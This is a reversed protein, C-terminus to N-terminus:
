GLLTEYALEHWQTRVCIPLATYQDHVVWEYFLSDTVRKAPRRFLSVGRLTEDIEVDPTGGTQGIFLRLIARRLNLAATGVSGPFTILAECMTFVDVLAADGGKAHELIDRSETFSSGVLSRLEAVFDHLPTELVTPADEIRLAAFRVESLPPVGRNVRLRSHQDLPELLTAIDQPQAPDSMAELKLFLDDFPWVGPIPVLGQAAILYRAFQSFEWALELTATWCDRFLVVEPQLREAAFAAKIEGFRLSKVPMPNPDLFFGAPGAGHGWFFVAIRADSGVKDRAFRLFKQLSGQTGSNAEIANVCAKPDDEGYKGNVFCRRSAVGQGTFDVYAALQINRDRAAQRIAALELSAFPNLLPKRDDDAVIYAIVIWPRAM